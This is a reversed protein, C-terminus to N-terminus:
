PRVALAPRTLGQGRRALELLAEDSPLFELARDLAAREELVTM